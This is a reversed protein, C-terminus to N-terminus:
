ELRQQKPKLEPLRKNSILMRRMEYTKGIEWVDIGRDLFIEWDTEDNIEYVERTGFDVYYVYIGDSKLAINIQRKWFRSGDWSQKSDTLISGYKPLLYEWFITTPLHLEYENSGNSWLLLQQVHHGIINSYSQKFEMYYTIKQRKTNLCFIKNGLTYITANDDIHKYVQKHANNWLRIYKQHNQISNILIKPTYDGIINPSEIIIDSLRM